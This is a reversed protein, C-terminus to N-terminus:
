SWVGGYQAYFDIVGYEACLGGVGIEVAHYNTKAPGAGPTIVSQRLYLNENGNSDRYLEYVRENLIDNEVPPTAAILTQDGLCIDLAKVPIKSLTELYQITANM